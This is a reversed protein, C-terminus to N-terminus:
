REPEGVGNAAAAGDVLQAEIAHAADRLTPALGVRCRRTLRNAPGLVSLSANVAPQWRIPVSVAAAGVIREGSSMAWGRRRTEDLERRLAVADLTSGDARAGLPMAALVSDADKPDMAALIVKGASGIWLPASAGVGSVYRIALPSPLETICVREIGIGVHLTVTESTEEWLRLLSPQAVQALPGLGTLVGQSARLFGPGLSYLNGGPSKVVLNQYGLSSLLRFTTGKPLGTMRAVETLTRPMTSLTMVIDVAREVSQVRQKTV